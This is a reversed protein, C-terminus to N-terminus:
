RRRNEQEPLLINLCNMLLGATKKLVVQDGAKKLSRIHELALPGLSIEYKM